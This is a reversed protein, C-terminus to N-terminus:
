AGSAARDIFLAGATVVTEGPRLGSLVQVVGGESKGAKIQRLELVRGRRAVWVKTTDGEFIVASEPVAVADMPASTRLRFAAFMEPKLVGGPNEIKARVTVRRTVPDVTPSVYDVRADFVRGPLANVRVEIPQGIAAKDADEERLNGVLWVVGLDSVTFAPAAGGNTVSGINQGVGVARQTVTGAIPSVVVSEGSTAKSTSPGSLASIQASSQGLIGLRNKVATEAIEAARVAGQATTLDLASQQLDRQSTGGFKFLEIQRQRATQALALQARATQLASAATVLDSQAQVFETAQVAFLPQGARVKDGAKAFVKTVHGSFPSFVQTTRDDDTAIKGDTESEDAFSQQRAVAFSLTAWQPQTAIFTGAPPAPAPPPPKPAFLGGILKPGFLLVLAVLAGIGLITLQTRRPLPARRRGDAPDSSTM